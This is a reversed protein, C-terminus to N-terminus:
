ESEAARRCVGARSGPPSRPWLLLISVPPPTTGKEDRTLLWLARAATSNLRDLDEKSPSVTISRKACGSTALQNFEPIYRERLFRSAPELTTIGALRLEQPLRGQWTGYNGERHGRAEPSYAPIMHIALEKLSRGSSRSGARTWRNVLKGTDLLLPQWPRQVARLIQTRIAQMEPAAIDQANLLLAFLKCTSAYIRQQRTTNRAAACTKHAPDGCLEFEACPCASRARWAIPWLSTWVASVSSHWAILSAGCFASYRAKSPMTSPM